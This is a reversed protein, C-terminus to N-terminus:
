SPDKVPVVVDGAGAVIRELVELPLRFSETSAFFLVQRRGTGDVVIHFLDRGDRDVIELATGPYDVDGTTVCSEVSDVLRAREIFQLYKSM